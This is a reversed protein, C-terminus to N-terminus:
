PYLVLCNEYIDKKIVFKDQAAAPMQKKFAAPLLVRGKVDIKCTYDGIFIIMKRQKFVTSYFYINKVVNRWKKGSKVVKNIFIPLADHLSLTYIETTATDNCFFTRKPGIQCYM